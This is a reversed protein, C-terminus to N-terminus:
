ESDNEPIMLESVISPLQLLHDLEKKAADREFM